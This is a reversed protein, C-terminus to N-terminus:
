TPPATTPTTTTPRGRLGGQRRLEPRRVGAPGLHVHEGPGFGNEFATILTFPKFSSGPQRHGNTALNFPEEVFDNGGVMAKVGGTENDIVVVSATPEIGALTNYAM